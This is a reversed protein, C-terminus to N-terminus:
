NNNNSIYKITKSDSTSVLAVCVTPECKSCGPNTALDTTVTVYTFTVFASECTFMIFYIFYYNRFYIFLDLKSVRELRIDDATFVYKAVIHCKDFVQVFIEVPSVAGLRTDHSLTM